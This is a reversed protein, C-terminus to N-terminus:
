NIVGERLHAHTYASLQAHTYVSLQTHTRYVYEFAFSLHAPKIEEITSRLYEINAPIGRIDIFKIVFSYDPSNEIIEVTGNIFSECVNKLMTKTITGQGRLRTMIRARRNEYTENKDIKLGLYKEWSDLGWTATNVFLQNLIDQIAEKVKINEADICAQINKVEESGYYFSPLYKILEM